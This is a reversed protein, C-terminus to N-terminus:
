NKIEVGGMMVLGRLILHGRPSPPPKTRDEVGGMIAVGEFSIKWDEPVRLDVGGMLVLLDLVAAESAIKATRLDIEHGGMIATIDGGRFDPSTMKRDIGSWLAFASITSSQDGDGRAGPVVVEGPAGSAPQQALRVRRMAGGVMTFGLLILAIPWLDWISYHVMDLNELLLWLGAVTFLGGVMFNQRSLFGTLRLIGYGLLIAPWLGLVFDADVLGLKGLMFVIGLALLVLGMVLRGTLRSPQSLGAFTRPPAEYPDPM